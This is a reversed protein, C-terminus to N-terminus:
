RNLINKECTYRIKEPILLDNDILHRAIHIQNYECALGLTYRKAKDVDTYNGILLNVLELHGNKVAPVFPSLVNLDDYRAGHEILLKAIDIHKKESARCLARSIMNERINYKVNGCCSWSTGSRENITAGKVILYNVLEIHGYECAQQLAFSNGSNVDIGNDILLVALALNGHQCAQGLPYYNDSEMKLGHKILYEVMEYRNYISAIMLANKTIGKDFPSNVKVLFIFRRFYNFECVYALRHHLSKEDDFDDPNYDGDNSENDSDDSEYDSDNTEDDHNDNTM